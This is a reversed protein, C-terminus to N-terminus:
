TSSKYKRWFKRQYQAQTKFMIQGSTYKAGIREAFELGPSDETYNLDIVKTPRFPPWNKHRTKGVAWVLTDDRRFNEVPSRVSYFSTSPPLILSMAKKTGGGGWVTVPPSIERFLSKLGEVDTNHGVIQKGLFLTNVSHVQQAVPTHQDCHAMIASKLPSTVAACELGLEKLIHLSELEEQSMKIKFVPLGEKRFYKDQEIPTHSHRIPDGLVAAFSEFNDLCRLWDLLLPQDPASGEALKVFNIKMHPKQKLRYWDWRGDPSCPLFSRNKPDKMWWQHAEWLEKFDKIPIALKLHKGSLELRLCCTRVNEGQARQHLSVIECSRTPSGWEMPWDVTVPPICKQPPYKRCSYILKQRPILDIAWQIHKQCLLDDRLEFHTLLPTYIKLFDRLHEFSLCHTPLLTLQGKPPPLRSRQFLSAEWPNEFDLGEILTIEWHAWEKYKQNRKEFRNLYEEYESGRHSLHPRDLTTRGNSDVLRRVWVVSAEQPIDGEFGAGLVLYSVKKETKIKEWVRQFAEREKGRFQAEGEQVFIEYLSKGYTKVIEQDLDWCKAQSDYSKIRELLLTKGVGRHGVLVYM